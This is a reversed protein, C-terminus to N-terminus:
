RGEILEIDGSFTEVRVRAKGAGTTFRLEKGPTFKSTREAYPGFENDIDGSFTSVDFDADVDSPLYLRIDGSHGEFSYTGDKVLSGHFELEGSVSSSRFRRITGGEIYADGSVTEVTIEGHVNVLEVDGSVSEAEVQDSEVTLEIRGSVTEAEIEDPEGEAVVDGSVSELYLKGEVKNVEIDASVTSVEVENGKPLHIVLDTDDVNGRHRRPLKVEIRVRSGDRECIFKDVDRGLTGTVQVERKDWGTVVISGATNKIVVQGDADAQVTRDIEEQALSPAVLL